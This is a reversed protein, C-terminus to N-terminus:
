VLFPIILSLRRKSVLFVSPYCVTWRFIKEIKELKVAQNPKLINYFTFIKLVLVKQVIEFLKEFDTSLIQKSSAKELLDSRINECGSLIVLSECSFLFFGFNKAQSSETPFFRSQFKFCLWVFFVPFKKIMYHM